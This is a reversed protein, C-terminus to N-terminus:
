KACHWIDRAYDEISRDAAFIGSQAINVLSMSNWKYPDAYLATADKQARCYDNFDALVMYTDTNLLANVVDTFQKGSFGASMFDIAKHLEQNNNYCDRPSYISKLREAEPTSMGFIIINDDGVSQHIEVNAGDETGLTVAGNMMFKM